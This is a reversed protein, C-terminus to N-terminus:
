YVCWLSGVPTWESIVVDGNYFFSASGGDLNIADRIIIKEENGIARIITPLKELLPGDLKSDPKFIALLYLQNGADTVAVMRRAVTDTSLRLKAEKGGVILLPGTQLAYKVGESPSDGISYDNNGNITIFGNFLANTREPYILQEDIVVLGLAKFNTDYFGGNIAARCSYNSVIRSASIKDEYNAILRVQNLPGVRIIAYEFSEGDMEISKVVSKGSKATAFNPLVEPTKFNTSFFIGVAVVLVIILCTLIIRM